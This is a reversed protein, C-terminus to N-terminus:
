HASEAKGGRKTLTSQTGTSDAKKREGFCWVALVGGALAILLAFLSHGVREFDGWTPMLRLARRSVTSIGTMVRPADPDVIAANVAQRAASTM